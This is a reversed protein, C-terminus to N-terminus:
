ISQMAPFSHCRNHFCIYMYAIHTHAFSLTISIFVDRPVKNRKEPIYSQAAIFFTKVYTKGEVPQNPCDDGKLEVIRCNFASTLIASYLGKEENQITVNLNTYPALGDDNKDLGRIDSNVGRLGKRECVTYVGNDLTSPLGKTQQENGFPLPAGNPPGRVGDADAQTFQIPSLLRRSLFVIIM